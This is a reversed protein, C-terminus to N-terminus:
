NKFIKPQRPPLEIVPAPAPPPEPAAPPEPATEVPPAIEIPAPSPANGIAPPLPVIPALAPSPSISPTPTVIAPLPSPQVPLPAPASFNAEPLPREPPLYTESSSYDPAAIPTPAPTLIQPMESVPWDTSSPFSQERGFLSPTLNSSATGPKGSNTEGKTQAPTQVSAFRWSFGLGVGLLGGLMSLFLLAMPMWARRPSPAIPMRYPLASTGSAAISVPRSQSIVPSTAPSTHGVSHDIARNSAAVAEPMVATVADTATLQHEAPNPADGLRAPITEPVPLNPTVLDPASTVPIWDSFQPLPQGPALEFVVFPMGDEEFCDLVHLHGVPQQSIVRVRSLFQQRLQAFDDRQRLADNLTQLVVPRGLISHQAQYTVGFDSQHLQKHVAYKHNQLTAGATLSM